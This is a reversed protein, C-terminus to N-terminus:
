GSDQNKTKQREKQTKNTEQKTADNRNKGEEDGIHHMM